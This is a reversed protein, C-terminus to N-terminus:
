WRPMREGGFMAEIERAIWAAVPAGEPSIVRRKVHLPRIVSARDKGRVIGVRRRVNREADPVRSVLANERTSRHLNTVRRFGDRIPPSEERAAHHDHVLLLEFFIEINQGSFASTCSYRNLKLVPTPM